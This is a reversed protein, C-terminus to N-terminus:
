ILSPLFIVLQMGQEMDPTFRYWCISKYHKKRNTLQNVGTTM